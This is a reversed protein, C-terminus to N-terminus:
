PAALGLERRDLFRYGNEGGHIRAIEALTNLPDPDLFQICNIQTTRRGTAPDIPNLRDLMDLLDNQDIEFQGAGTINDSLIFIADPKLKIAAEIAALPNSNGSPIINDSIWELSKLKADANARSLERAPPVVIADARQYFVIGYSQRPSLGDLSRGLEEIVYKLTRLMSGSADIVYVVRRANTAKLGVFSASGEAAQPAFEALSSMARADSFTQLPDIEALPTQAIEEPTVVDTPILTEQLKPTDTSSELDMKALPDYVPAYFDAVIEVSKEEQQAVVNWTILFGVILLLLHVLPSVIWPAVSRVRHAAPTEAGLEALKEDLPEGTGHHDTKPVSL